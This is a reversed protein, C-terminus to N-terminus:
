KSEKILIVSFIVYLVAGFDTFYNQFNQNLLLTVILGGGFGVLYTALFHMRM